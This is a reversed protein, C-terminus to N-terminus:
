LVGRVRSRKKKLPLFNKFSITKFDEGAKLLFEQQVIKKQPMFRIQVYLKEVDSNVAKFAGSFSLREGAKVKFTGILGAGYADVSDIIRFENASNRIVKGKSYCRWLKGDITFERPAAAAFLSCFLLLLFVRLKM